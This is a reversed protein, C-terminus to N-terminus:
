PIQFAFINMVGTMMLPFAAYSPILRRLQKRM